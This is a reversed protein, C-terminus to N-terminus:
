NNEHKNYVQFPVNVTSVFGTNALKRTCDINVLLKWILRKQPQPILANVEGEKRVHNLFVVSALNPPKKWGEGYMTLQDNEKDTVVGYVEPRLEPKSVRVSNIAHMRKYDYGWGCSGNGDTRKPWVEGGAVMLRKRWAAAIGENGEVFMSFWTPTREEKQGWLFVFFGSLAWKCLSIHQKPTVNKTGTKKKAQKSPYTGETQSVTEVMRNPGMWIVM